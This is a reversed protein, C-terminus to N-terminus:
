FGGLGQNNMAICAFVPRTYEGRQQKKESTDGKFHHVGVIHHGERQKRFHRLVRALVM